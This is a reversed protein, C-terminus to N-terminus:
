SFTIEIQNSDPDVLTITNGEHVADDIYDAIRIARILAATRHTGNRCAIATIRDVDEESLEVCVKLKKSMTM